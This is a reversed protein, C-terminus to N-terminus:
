SSSYLYAFLETCSVVRGLAAIGATVASINTNEYLNAVQFLDTKPVGYKECFNLFIEVNEM